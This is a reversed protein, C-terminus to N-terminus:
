YETTEYHYKVEFLPTKRGNVAFETIERISDFVKDKANLENISLWENHHGEDDTVLEGIPNKGYVVFFYKDELIASTDKSYDMKHYLGAYSLDATLGTEELLERAASEALTEGWRIKGTPRGWFGYFPQKLRQQAVFQGKDNEIILLVSVKPQKEITNDDTDMRNAYEKGSQSLVYQGDSLKSVYGTDILKSLHFNFHDSTLGTEKQLTAFSASPSLLLHRLISMQASHASAEYSM